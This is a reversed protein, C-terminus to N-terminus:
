IHNKHDLSEHLRPDKLPILPGGSVRKVFMGFFILMPGLVAPVDVWHGPGVGPVEPRIMWYTDMTQVAILYVCIFAIMGRNRRWPRPILLIFPVIFHCIPLAWSMWTWPEMKRIQFFMTEEPINAYWILFYQSFSIYAWFVVFAFLLKSLDHLHESTFAGHLRGFSRLVILTLTGLALASVMARAFFHVGLMTSFWHYDLTMVWDFGAFAATFAFLPIGVASVKRATATHWKDGDADQRTSLNWLAFAFGCWVLFYVIARILFFPFNLFGKKHEYLVDGETKAANMWDWLYPAGYGAEHAGVFLAQLILIGVFMLGPLWVLWMANEFQRRVTASWGAGTQHLIMVFVLSALPFGLAMIVGTHLSHLATKATLADGSFGALIALATLALGIFALGKWLISGAGAPLEVNDRAMYRAVGDTHHHDVTTM